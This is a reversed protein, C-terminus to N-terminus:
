GLGEVDIQGLTPFRDRIAAVIGKALPPPGKYQVVCTGAANDVSKVLVKGGYGEIAPRLMNLHSDVSQVSILDEDSAAGEDVRVVEKVMAGFHNRLAREIGMSMTATASACTGCAGELKLKVVGAEVEEVTVNGGDAILYPRVEDLVANVSEVDMIRPSAEGKAAAVSTSPQRASAAAFPSVRAEEEEGETQTTESTQRDIVESWDDGEVAKITNLRRERQSESEKKGGELLSDGMAKKMKLKQQEHAAEEAKTRAVAKSALKDFLESESSIGDDKAALEGLWKDRQSQLYSRSKLKNSSVLKVRCSACSESDFAELYGRIAVVINRSYGVFQLKKDERYIAYLGCLKTGERKELWESIEFVETGEVEGKLISTQSEEESAHTEGEGGYLENHLSAHGEPVTDDSIVEQQHSRSSSSSSSSSSSTAQVFLRVTCSRKKSTFGLRSTVVAFREKAPAKAAVTKHNTGTGTGTRSSGSQRVFTRPQALVRSTIAAM